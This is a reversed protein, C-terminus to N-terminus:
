PAQFSWQQNFQTGSWQDVAAGANTATVGGFVEMSKGSNVNVVSYYGSDTPTITWKQNAANNSDWIDVLAGNATSSGAVELTRGSQVGVIKYTNGGLSTVTWRQNDGGNYPWQETPSGNTTSQHSVDLALGSHRVILKYTGNAPGSVVFPTPHTWQLPIQGKIMKAGDGTLRLYFDSSVHVGDADLTLFYQDSPKMSSDEAAKAIATAEDYEDFMGVYVSPVGQNRINAFQEWLFDGHLRPILNQAGGKWNSWAFGPFAEAQYDLGHSNCYAFDAAIRSADGDAGAVGSISGTVWPMIMNAANYAPLNATQTRWDKPGGVIVYCGQGKFWNIVDTWSTVNGPRNAVGIGWICVVPKGNQKAYASSATLQLNNVIASTWDTKMETQFATWGSIDYMVYFKRGYTQAANRVRVAVGDKQPDSKGFRQHAATDIGYTQM